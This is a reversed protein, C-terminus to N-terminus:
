KDYRMAEVPTLRAAKWAPYLGSIISVVVAFGLTAALLLPNISSGMTIGQLMQQNNRSIIPAAIISLVAGIGVGILGGLLGYIASELVFIGFIKQRKAGIAQMIGIERKREHVATMMTNIIGFAAALLAVGAVLQLTSTITSLLNLAQDRLQENTAVRVNAVNIIAAVYYDLNDMDYIDVMIYSILDANQETLFAQQMIPLPLFVSSDDNSNTAELIGIIPIGDPFRDLRINLRDGIDLDFRNRLSVGIVAGLEDHSSFYRGYSTNWNRFARTENPLIGVVTTDEETSLARTTRTLFPVATIGEIQAIKEFESFHLTEPIASGTILAITNYICMNYPVVIIDGALSNAQSRVENQMNWGITLMAVFSAVGITIGLLTFIFRGKQRFINKFVLKFINM